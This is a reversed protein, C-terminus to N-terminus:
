PEQTGNRNFEREEKEDPVDYRNELLEEERKQEERQFNEEPDPTFQNIRAGIDETARAPNTDLPSSLIQALSTQSTLFLLTFLIQKM